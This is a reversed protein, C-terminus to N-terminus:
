DFGNRMMINDPSDVGRYQIAGLDYHGLQPREVSRNDLSPQRQNSADIVPSEPTPLASFSALAQSNLKPDTCLSGPPCQDNRVAWVLNNDTVLQAGSQYGYIGCTPRVGGGTAFTLWDNNGGYLVNNSLQITSSADGQTYMVLCGGQGTVTNQRLTSTAGPSLSVAIADGSARCTGSLEMNYKGRFQSSEYAGTYNNPPFTSWPLACSGIVVSDEVLSPGAVKLQNGANGEAKVRRYTVSGSGNAYLLDIGDSVNHHIYSDEIVWDGGTPGTGLGDGYGGENQDWCGFIEGTPYREGCGSWAIELRSFRITGHNSTDASPVGNRIDGDWGAFGNAWLRLNVVDWDTLRGSRVGEGGIGHIDIDQLSVNAADSAILGNGAYPDGTKCRDIQTPGGTCNGASCHNVICSSHDTVELCAVETNSSRTMDLVTYAGASGWLEPPASCGQDWGQGLIRTKHAPDPGAPIPQMHCDATYNAYCTSTDPAGYGMMYSGRGIILTDGGAIRAPVRHENNVPPLAVFPHSWACPQASGSGPYPADALGTCQEATGGDTRVYYTAAFGPRAFLTASFALL